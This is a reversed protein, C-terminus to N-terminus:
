YSTWLYGRSDSHSCSVVLSGWFGDNEDNNYSWGGNDGPTATPTVMSSEDHGTNLNAAAPLKAVPIEPIWRLDNINVLSRLNDLPYVGENDSYYISLASRLAGLNGKTTSEHGRVILQSFKPIGIAALVSIIAVVIMLEVLTFGRKKV